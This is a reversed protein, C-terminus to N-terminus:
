DGGKLLTLETKLQVPMGAASPLDLMAKLQTNTDQPFIERLQAVTTVLGSDTYLDWVKTWDANELDEDVHFTM